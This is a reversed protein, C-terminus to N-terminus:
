VRHVTLRASSVTENASTRHRFRSSTRPPKPRENWISATRSTVSANLSAFGRMTLVPIRVPVLTM